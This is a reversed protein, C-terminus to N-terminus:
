RGPRLWGHAAGEQDAAAPVARSPPLLTLKCSCYLNEIPFAAALWVPAGSWAGTSGPKGDTYRGVQM